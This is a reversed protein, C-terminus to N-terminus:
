MSINAYRTEVEDPLAMGNNQFGLPVSIKFTLVDQVSEVYANAMLSASSGLETGTSAIFSASYANKWEATIRETNQQLLAVMAVLISRRGESQSLEELANDGFLLYEVATFGIQNSPLSAVDDTTYSSQRAISTELGFENLPWNSYKTVLAFDAVPGFTYLELKAWQLRAIEWSARAAIFSAEDVETSLASTKEFLDSLKSILSDHAPVIINEAANTLILSRDFDVADEGGEGCSSTSFLLITVLLTYISLQKM